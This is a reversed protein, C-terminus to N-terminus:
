YGFGGGAITTLLGRPGVRRVFGGSQAMFLNGSRDVAVAVPSVLVAANARTPGGGAEAPGGGAVTALAGTRGDFRRIGALKLDAIWLDGDADAALALISGFTADTTPATGDPRAAQDGRVVTTIVGTEPDVRRIRRDDSEAIYLRGAADVAIAGIRGLPVSTAPQGDAGPREEPAGSAGGAVRAIQGRRVDVRYVRRDGAAIYLNEAPGVAVDAPSTLKVRSATDGDRPFSGSPNGAVTSIWGDPSIRRVRANGGDVVYVNGSRDVALAGPSDLAAETAPGEDGRMGPSGDGAITTIIGTASDIRRVRHHGTDSVYLNGAGDVALGGPKLLSAERAPGGDGCYGVSGDGAVVQMGGGAEVRFVRRLVADAVLLSGRGDVAVATPAELDAPTVERAGPRRRREAGGAVTEVTGDRGIRRLRRNGLDVVLVRGASDVALGAPDHFLASAAPGGDGAFGAAGGGALTAIIGSARDVKRVRHNGRDAILLDGRADFAVAEPFSLRARAAPGGDGAVGPLGDGAVITMVGTAPEISVVRHAGSDAVVLRGPEVAIAVPRKLRPGYGGAAGPAPEGGAVTSITGNEEVRRISGDGADAILLAGSSDLALGRPEKLRALTAPGGDGPRGSPPAARHVGSRESEDIGNGAFLTLRGARDVKFVRGLGPVAVYLNGRADVALGRPSGLGARLAPVGPAEPAASATAGRAPPAATAPVAAALSLSVIGVTCSARAAGV